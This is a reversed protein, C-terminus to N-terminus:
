PRPEGYVVGRGDTALYVRGAIRPDGAIARYRRAYQHADDNIRVWTRGEDASRYIGRAGAREAIAYLTPYDAGPMPSGFDMRQILVDGTEVRRFNQGGDRARYLGRTSVFWVDGARGPTARIPSPVERWYPQDLWLEGPLGRSPVRSFSLAGDVSVYWEGSSYNLAYFILPDDRDAIPRLGEPLGVVTRWTAGRDRSLIPTPTAVVFTEGDASVIIPADRYLDMRPDGAQVSTPSPAPRGLPRWSLGADDSWALTSGDAGESGVGQHPTGSRVVINPAHWAYEITNTNGFEPNTFQRAPSVSLDEHAFGSIDGFATLLPPGTRPSTLTIVATQEIGEVWPRWHTPRGADAEGLDRAAYLTAGTGYVIHNSDFPDIALAAIWWGFHPEDRGWYLFPTASVDRVAQERLSVWNAGDDTSRWLTDGPHWRNMTAVVLVGLRQRDLSLGMFGGEGQKPPTIEAWAGSQTDLRWVAGDTVGNPGVGRSFSIYLMGRADIQAQVPALGAGPGGEIRRWARGGDDSRYLGELGPDAVGVFIRHSARGPAGSAPDIVVFSLGPNTGEDSVGRGRHPFNAVPRWSRGADRSQQLGDHRSAFYIIASDNPDVALREGLGRGDENGGMRFSVLHREWTAGRDASRLIAAPERRSMGVAAYVVNADRPDPAISEVGYFSSEPESDQLPIWRGAAQDFRYAGGMDSRAYALGPEVQSFVVAPIFGGGGVKVSRWVYAADQAAAGLPVLCAGVAAALAAIWRSTM